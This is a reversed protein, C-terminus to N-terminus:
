RFNAQRLERLTTRYYEKLSYSIRGADVSIDLFQDISDGRMTLSAARRRGDMEVRNHICFYKPRPNLAFFEPNRSPRHSREDLLSPICFILDRLGQKHVSVDGQSSVYLQDNEYWQRTAHPYLSIEYTSSITAWVHMVDDVREFGNSGLYLVEYAGGFGLRVPDGIAIERAM